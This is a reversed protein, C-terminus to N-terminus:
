ALGVASPAAVLRPLILCRCYWRAATGDPPLLRAGCARLSRPQSQWGVTLCYLSDPSPCDGARILRPPGPPSPPLRPRRRLQPRGQGRNPDRVGQNPTARRRRPRSSARAPPFAKGPSTPVQPSGGAAASEGLSPRLSARLAKCAPTAPLGRRGASSPQGLQPFGARGSQYSAGPPAAPSKGCCPREAPWPQPYVV